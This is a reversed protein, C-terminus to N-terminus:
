YDNRGKSKLYERVEEWNISRKGKFRIENILVIKHGDADRIISVNREM